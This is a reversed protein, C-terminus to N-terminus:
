AHTLRGAAAPDVSVSPGMTGALYVSKVYVGKTAAPKAKIISEM